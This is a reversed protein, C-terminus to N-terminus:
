KSMRLLFTVFNRLKCRSQPGTVRARAAARTSDLQECTAQAMWVGKCYKLPKLKGDVSPGAM